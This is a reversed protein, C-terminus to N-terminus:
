SVQEQMFHLSILVAAMIFANIKEKKGGCYEGTLWYSVGPQINMGEKSPLEKIVEQQFPNWQWKLKGTAGDLAVLKLGPTTGYVIGEIVLPNCQVITGQAQSSDGSRYIWVLHLNKVNEKNVQNLTSYRSKSDDGAFATWNKGAYNSAVSIQGSCSLVATCPILCLGKAIIKRLFFKM